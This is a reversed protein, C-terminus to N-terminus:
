APQSPPPADPPMSLSLEQGFIEALAGHRAVLWDMQKEERSIYDDNIPRRGANMDAIARRSVFLLHAKTNIENLAAEVESAFLFRAAERAILFRRQVELSPRDAVMMIETLFADTASYVEVRREYLESRLTLEALQTQRELIRTQRDSIATQKESIKMQRKGIIVAAIVAAIGAVLTAVAGALTAFADWTFSHWAILGTDQM